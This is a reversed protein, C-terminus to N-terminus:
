DGWGRADNAFVSEVFHVGVGSDGEGLMLFGEGVGLEGFLFVIGQCEDGVCTGDVGDAVDLVIVRGIIVDPGIQNHDHHSTRIIGPHTAHMQLLPLLPPFKRLIRQNQQISQILLPPPIYMPNQIPLSQNIGLQKPLPSHLAIKNHTPTTQLLPLLIHCRTNQLLPQLNPLNIQLFHPCLSTLTFNIQLLRRVLTQQPLHLLDPLQHCFTNLPLLSLLFHLLLPSHSHKALTSRLM